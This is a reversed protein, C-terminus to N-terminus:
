TDPGVALDKIPQGDKSILIALWRVGDFEAAVAMLTVTLPTSLLAGPAGFMVGWFGISILVLLPDINLTDGQLKPMLVNDILFVGVGLGGLIIAPKTIDGYEALAVLAPIFAGAFAGVIPIFASLFVLFAVFLASHVGLAMMVAFALVAILLAKFTVLRVYQEVAKRISNFVRRAQERHHETDYLRDMKASFESRSAFLFGLYIMVLVAYTVAGRATILVRGLVATPDSGRFVERVTLPKQGMLETVQAILTNLHPEISFLESAFPPGEFVLLVIVAGFGAIIATGASVGRLLSPVRPFRTDLDQALADILLLLFTAVMLPSLIDQFFRVLAGVVVVALFIVAARVASLGGVSTLIPGRAPRFLRV